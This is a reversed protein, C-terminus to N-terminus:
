WPGACYARGLGQKAERHMVHVRRPYERALADALAGTGDPSNDDVVLIDYPGRHLIEEVLPRLNEIENYTPLIILTKLSM